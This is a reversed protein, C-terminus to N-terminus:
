ACFDVEHLYIITLRPLFRQRSRTRILLAQGSPRVFQVSNRLDVHLVQSKLISYEECSQFQTKKQPKGGGKEKKKPGRVQGMLFNSLTSMCKRVPTQLRCDATQDRLAHLARRANQLWHCPSNFPRDRSEIILRPALFPLISSRLWLLMITACVICVYM